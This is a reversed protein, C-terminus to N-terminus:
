AAGRPKARLRRVLAFADRTAEEPATRAELASAIRDTWIGHAANVAESGVLDRLLRDAGELRNRESALVLLDALAEVAPDAPTM